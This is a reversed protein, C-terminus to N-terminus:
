ARGGASATSDSVPPNASPLRDFAKVAAELRFAVNAAGFKGDVKRLDAIAQEVAKRLVDARAQAATALILDDNVM